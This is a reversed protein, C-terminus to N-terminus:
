IRMEDKGPEPCDRAWTRLEGQKVWDWARPTRQPSASGLLVFADQDILLARRHYSRQLGLLTMVRPLSRMPLLEGVGRISIPGPPTTSLLCPLPTTAISHRAQIRALGAISSPCNSVPYCM